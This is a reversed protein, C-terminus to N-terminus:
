VVLTADIRNAATSTARVLDGILRRM